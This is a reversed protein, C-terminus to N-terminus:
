PLQRLWLLLDENEVPSLKPDNKVSMVGLSRRHEAWALLKAEDIATIRSLRVLYLPAFAREEILELTMTDGFDDGFSIMREGTAVNPTVRQVLLFESFSRNRFHSIFADPRHVMGMPSTSSKGYLFWQLGANHDIALISRDEYSRIHAGLWNTVRAAFNEQSYRHMANTPTTFSMIYVLTISGLIEWRRRHTVLFPWAAVLALVLMLHAPLSLRRIIPDDWKGWFYCLMLLTHVALALIFISFAAMAPENAFMERHRRFFLLLFFGFGLVGGVGVLISSPQSGDISLFFNMAHGVNDYLYGLGFPRDAGAVDELQWTAQSLRFVNYHLPCIVVLLPAIMLAWPLCISRQRWWIYVVVLGVPAVFLVSEYRVQALLVGSLVFAGLRDNDRPREAARMGLWLTVLIMVMNLIEFGSGTANQAILPVSALLLVAVMGGRWGDLRHGILLTMLMLVFSLGANLVHANAPRYGTFDHVLSLLFPFVLPRKDVYTGMPTFNGAYDYGRLVVSAERHFHMQRATSQLVVEDAVIKFGYPEHLHLFVSALFAVGVPKWWMKWDRLAGIEPRLSRFLSVGFAVVALLVSWYGWQKVLAVAQVPAFSWFGLTLALACVLGFLLIKRSM